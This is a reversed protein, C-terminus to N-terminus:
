VAVYMTAIYDSVIVIFIVTFIDIVTFRLSLYHM